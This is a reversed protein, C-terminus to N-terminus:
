LQDAAGGPAVPAAGLGMTKAFEAQMVDGAKLQEALRAEHAQREAVQAKDAERTMRQPDVEDVM